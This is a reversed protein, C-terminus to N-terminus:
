KESGPWPVRIQRACSEILRAMAEPCPPPENSPEVLVEELRTMSQRESLPYVKLQTLDLPAPQSM